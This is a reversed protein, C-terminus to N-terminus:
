LIIAVLLGNGMFIGPENGVSADFQTPRTEEVSDDAVEDLTSFGIKKGDYPVAINDTENSPDISFEGGDREQVTIDQNCDHLAKQTSLKGSNDSSVAPEPPSIKDAAKPNDNHIEADADAFKSSETAVAEEVSGTSVSEQPILVESEGIVNVHEDHETSEVQTEFSMDAVVISAGTCVKGSSELNDEKRGTSTAVMSENNLESCIEPVNDSNVDKIQGRSRGDGAEQPVASSKEPLINEGESQETGSTVLGCTGSQVLESGTKEEVQEKGSLLNSNIKAPLSSSELINATTTELASKAIAESKSAAFVASQLDTVSAEPSIKSSKEDDEASNKVPMSHDSITSTEQQSGGVSEHSLNSMKEKVKLQEVGMMINAQSCEASGSEVVSISRVQMENCLSEVVSSDGEKVNSEICKVDAHLNEETTLGTKEGIASSYGYAPLEVKESQSGYNTQIGGGGKPDQDLSTFSGLFEAPPLESSHDIIENVRDDQRLNRDMPKSLSPLVDGAESEEIISEGVVIDEQGVSKLLMEVSESSTAESWVNNHRPISCSDAASSSFEIGSSGRSFDEIWQNDEQSPIGLFVENEVLSDFRLHGEDFDFKPLAYPHLVPSIKSSEEGALHLGHGQYDNDDNDMPADSFCFLSFNLFCLNVINAPWFGIM